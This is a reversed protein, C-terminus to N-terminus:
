MRSSSPNAALSVRVMTEYGAAVAKLFTAGDAHHKEALALAAPIVAAGPHIKARHHDDFDFGHIATGAALAANGASVMQGSGGWISAEPAGAQEVAYAQSIACAPTTLGFLGCSVADTLADQLVRQLQEPVPTKRMGAIFTALAVTAGPASVRELSATDIM